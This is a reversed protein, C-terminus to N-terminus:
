DKFRVAKVEKLKLEEEMQELLDKLKKPSVLFYMWALRFNKLWKDSSLKKLTQNSIHLLFKLAASQKDLNLRMNKLSKLIPNPLIIAKNTPGNTLFQKAVDTKYLMDIIETNNNNVFHNHESIRLKKELQSCSLYADKIMTEGYIDVVFSLVQDRHELPKENFDNFNNISNMMMEVRDKVDELNNLIYKSIHRVGQDAEEIMKKEQLLLMLACSTACLLKSYYKSIQTFCQLNNEMDQLELQSKKIEILKTPEEAIILAKKKLKDFLIEKQKLADSPSTIDYSNYNDQSFFNELFNYVEALSEAEMRSELYEIYSSFIQNQLITIKDECHDENPTSNLNINSLSFYGSLEDHQKKVLSEVTEYFGVSDHIEDINKTNLFDSSENCQFNALAILDRSLKEHLCRNQEDVESALEECLKSAEQYKFDIEVSEREIMLKNQSLKNQLREEMKLLEDLRQEEQELLEVEALSEKLQKSNLEYNLIGPKGEELKSFATELQGDYLPNELSEFEAFEQASVINERSLGSCMFNLLNKMDQDDTDFWARVVNPDLGGLNINLDKFIVLLHDGNYTNFETM